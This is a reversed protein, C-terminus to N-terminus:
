RFQIPRRVALTSCFVGYVAGTICLLVLGTEWPFVPLVASANLGRIFSTIATDAIVLLVTAFAGGITGQVLGEIIFPIRITASSAGVLSMIRLELRRSMVTLRIANYILIGGILLLLGGLAGGLWRLMRLLQDILRQEEALYKVGNLPEVTPMKQISKAISDGQSLDRVIVKLADPYPNEFDKYLPFRAQDKAWMAKRPIYIVEKVGSNERIADVTSKIQTFSTGDRIFVRMEFKGPLTAAYATAQQFVYLFGGLLFLSVAVTTIAAFTMLLNRRLAVFGESVVFEIRDLM